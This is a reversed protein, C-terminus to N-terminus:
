GQMADLWRKQRWAPAATNFMPTGPMLLCLYAVAAERQRQYGEKQTRLCLAVSLPEGMFYRTGPAFRQANSAWWRSVKAASPWPLDDSADWALANGDPEADVDEPPKADLDLMQLDVGTISSFAEGALRAWLRDTMKDILWPVFHVDGLTGLGRIALHASLPDAILPQLVGAGRASTLLKLLLALSRERHVGPMTATEHLAKVAARRDGLLVASHAAWFRCDADEDQMLDVCTPLLDVRGREGAIRLAVARLSAEGDALAADLARGADILHFNCAALGAMRRFADGSALLDRTIGRLSAASVWNFALVVGHQTSPLALAISLLKDMRAADGQDLALVAASFMEGVGPAELAAACLQVGFEGAVSLGDLHAALREDLRALHHLKVHPAHVMTSRIQGLLASMDAHQQVVEEIWRASPNLM